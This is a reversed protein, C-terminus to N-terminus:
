AQCSSMETNNPNQKTDSVKHCMCLSGTNVFKKEHEGVGGGKWGERGFPFQREVGGKWFPVTQRHLLLFTAKQKTKKKERNDKSM